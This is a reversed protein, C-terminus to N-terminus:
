QKQVCKTTERSREAHVRKVMSAIEQVEAYHLVMSLCRDVLEDFSEQPKARNAAPETRVNSM